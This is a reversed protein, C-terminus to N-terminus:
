FGCLEFCLRGNFRSFKNRKKLFMITMNIFKPTKQIVSRRTSILYFCM